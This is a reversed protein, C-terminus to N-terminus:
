TLLSIPCFNQPQHPSKPSRFVSIQPYKGNEFQSLIPLDRSFLVASIHNKSILNEVYEDAHMPDESMIANYETMGVLMVNFDKESYNISDFLTVDRVIAINEYDTKLEGRRVIEIDHSSFDEFTLARKAQGRNKERSMHKIYQENFQKLSYTSEGKIDVNKNKVKKNSFLFIYNGFEEVEDLDEFEVVDLEDTDAFAYNEIVKVSQPVYIRKTRTCCSISDGGIVEVGNPIIVDEEIGSPVRFLTKKDKTYMYGKDDSAFVPNEEDVRISKLSSCFDSFNTDAKVISKPLAYETVRELYSLCNNELTTICSPIEVVNELANTAFFLRSMDKSVLMKGDYLTTLNQNECDIVLRKLEDCRSALPHDYRQYNKPLRIEKLKPCNIIAWPKILLANSEFKNKVNPAFDICELIPANSFAARGVECVSSPVTIKSVNEAGMFFKDPITKIKTNQLFRKRIYGSEYYQLIKFLVLVISEYQENLLLTEVNSDGIKALINFEKLYKLVSYEREIPKLLQELKDFDDPNKEICAIVYSAAFYSKVDDNLFYYKDTIKSLIPYYDRFRLSNNHNIIESQMGISNYAIEKLTNLERLVLEIIVDEIDVINDRFHSSIKRPISYENDSEFLNQYVKIQSDFEYKIDSVSFSDADKIIETLLNIKAFSDFIEFIVDDEKLKDFENAVKKGDVKKQDLKYAIYAVFHKKDLKAISYTKYDALTDQKQMLALKSDVNINSSAFVINFANDYEEIDSIVCQKDNDSLWDFNDILLTIKPKETAASYAFLKFFNLRYALINNDCLCRRLMNEGERNRNALNIYLCNQNHEFCKRLFSSTGCGYDTHLFVKNENRQLLDIYTLKQNNEIVNPICDECITSNEFGKYAFLTRAVIIVEDTVEYDVTVNNHPAELSEFFKSAQCVKYLRDALKGVDSFENYAIRIQENLHEYVDKEVTDEGNRKIHRSFVHEKYVFSQAFSLPELVNQEFGYNSLGFLVRMVNKVFVSTNSLAKDFTYDNDGILAFRMGGGNVTHVVFTSFNAEKSIYKGKREDEQLQFLFNVLPELVMYHAPNNLKSIASLFAPSNKGDIIERYFGTISCRKIYEDELLINCLEEETKKTADIHQFNLSGTKDDFSNTIGDLDVPILFRQGSKEQAFRLEKQCYESALYNKSNFFLFVDCSQIATAIYVEWKAGREIDKKDFWLLIKHEALFNAVKEVRNIDKHSYSIFVRSM